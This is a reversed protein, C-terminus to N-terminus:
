LHSVYLPVPSSVQGFRSISVSTRRRQRAAARNAAVTAPDQTLQDQELAARRESEAELKEFIQVDNDAKTAGLVLVYLLVKELADPNSLAM